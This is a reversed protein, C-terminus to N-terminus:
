RNRGPARWWSVAGWVVLFVTVIAGVIFEMGLIYRCSPQYFIGNAASSRDYRGFSLLPSNQPDIQKYVGFIITNPIMNSALFVIDALLV